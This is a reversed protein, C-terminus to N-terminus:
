ALRRKNFRMLFAALDGSTFMGNGDVDFISNAGTANGSRYATLFQIYDTGDVVGDGNSDGFFRFFSLTATSGAAGTGAADISNGADDLILAGNVSLVYRGDPLSTGELDPGSFSLTLTTAGNAYAPTSPVVPFTKGDSTRTLTFAAAPASVIHGKFTQTITRVVSREAAGNEVLDQTLAALASVKVNDYAIGGSPAMFDRSDYQQFKVQTDSTLTLGLTAALQSLNYTRTTYTTSSALLDVVRYWTTGGDVSFSVGDYNGHSTFSAPMASATGDIFNTFKKEDFSLNVGAQGSLNLHLVAENLVPFTFVYLTTAGAPNNYQQNADMVLQYNGSAPGNTTTVQTRGPGSTYIQWQQGLAGSEFGDNLNVTTAVPGGFIARYADILGAGVEQSSYSPVAPNGSLIIPDASAALAAYVQTPTSGPKAQLLLAAVGAAHPAAASTGYFNGYGDTDSDSGFFTTNGGDPALIDPKSVVMPGLLRNGAADFLFTMPGESSFSETTRQNRSPVAGVGEANPSGAHPTITSSNTAPSFTVNGYQNSGYNVTKIRGPVTGAYLNIVLEYQQASGSTNQYGLYEYPTQNLLNNSDAAAVVQGTSVNILYIDVDSTVGSKSYFPQDWQMSLGIGGGSALTFTQYPNAAGGPTPNFNYYLGPHPDIAAITTTTFQIPNTGYASPSGSDYSQSAFNGAASFYSVGQKTVVSDIAQGIIGEQFMPEAFYYIDDAIVKSGANALAQINAAFGAQGPGATAFALSSGPAVDHVIQLMARGEDSGGSGEAIVQVGSAPLDGSSVDAAAGGKNNYSDSLVGVKVGTGDFGPTSAQVRDAEVVNVGQSTTLGVSTGPKPVGIIGMLGQPGLESVAALSSWPLFGEIRNYQPLTATVSVGLAQLAPALAAANGTTIDVGIRGQDDTMYTTLTGPDVAVAPAMVHNYNVLLDTSVRDADGGILTQLKLAQAPAIAPNMVAMLARGELRDIGPRLRRGQRHRARRSPTAPQNSSPRRSMKSTDMM